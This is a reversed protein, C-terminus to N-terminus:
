KKANRWSNFLNVFDIGAGIRYTDRASPVVHIAVTNEYPQVGTASALVLPTGNQPKSIRMNATAFLFLMEFKGDKQGIPLPYFVDARVVAGRYGGETILQDQGLTVMYTAPPAYKRKEEFTAVRLGFGYQRYFRERDPPVFAVHKAGTKAVEPFRAKFLDYQPTGATPTLFVKAQSAPDRFSGNAGWFGVLEMTRVRSPVKTVGDDALVKQEWRALQFGLGTLFEGSQAMENVKLEGATTAFGAIFQGIPTDIQQPSSAIRVNGWLNVRNEHVKAKSGLGRMIFFDFFYNQTSPASSAGAQHLGFVARSEWEDEPVTTQGYAALVPLLLWTMIKRKM